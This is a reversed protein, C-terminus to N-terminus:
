WHNFEYYPYGAEKVIKNFKEKDQEDSFFNDESVLEQYSLGLKKRIKILELAESKLKKLFERWLYKDIYDFIYFYNYRPKFNGYEGIGLINHGYVHSDPIKHIMYFNFHKKERMLRYEASGKLDKEVDAEELLSNVCQYVPYAKIMEKILRIMAQRNQPQKEAQYNSHLTISVPKIETMVQALDEGAQQLDEPGGTDLYFILDINSIINYHDLQRCIHILRDKSTFLRNQATLIRTSLTQVGMSVYNFGYRSFLALHEDSATYPSVETSKVPIHIFNPIRQYLEELTQPDAITPTGGGFNVQNFSINELIERYQEIQRPIVEQYFKM